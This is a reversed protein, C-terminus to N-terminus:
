VIFYKNTRVLNTEDIDDFAHSTNSDIDLVAILAGDHGMIPIVIESRTTPSCAIHYPIKTVDPINLLKMETACKGCVGQSFPITLCGHTGQYPGIKLTSEGTKRYFGVWDFHSFSHYLECVISAMIAVDDNEGELLSDLELFMKDYIEKKNM